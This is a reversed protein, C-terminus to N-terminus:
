RRLRWGNPYKWMRPRRDFPSDEHHQGRSAIGEARDRLWAARLAAVMSHWIDHSVLGSEEQRMGRGPQFFDDREVMTHASM